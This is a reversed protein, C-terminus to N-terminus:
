CCSGPSQAGTLLLLYEVSPHKPLSGAKALEVFTDTSVSLFKQCQAEVFAEWDGMETTWEKPVCNGGAIIIPGAPADASVQDVQITLSTGEKPGDPSNDSCALRGDGLERVGLAQMKRSLEDMKESLRMYDYMKNLLKIRIQRQMEAQIEREFEEPDLKQFEGM